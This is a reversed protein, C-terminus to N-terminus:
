CLKWIKMLTKITESLIVLDELCGFMKEDIFRQFTAPANRLRFLMDKFRFTGLPTVFVTKNRDCEHVDVQWLGTRLDLTSTYSTRKALHLMEEIHYRTRIM